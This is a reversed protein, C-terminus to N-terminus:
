KRQLYYNRWESVWWHLQENLQPALASVSEAILHQFVKIAEQDTLELRFNEEIIKLSKQGVIQPLGSNLMLHFLNIILNANKRLINFAECCFTKFKEYNQSKYGGMADVMEPSLKFPPAFPKPDNGLIFGFDIHFLHGSDTLMLNEAHRDGVGLIYTFVCYGACSRTFIDLVDPKMGHTADPHLKELYTKISGHQREIKQLTTGRAFEVMGNHSDTALV